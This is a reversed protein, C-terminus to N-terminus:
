LCKKTLELDLKIKHKPLWRTKSETFNIKNPNDGYVKNTSTFIFAAKPNYKKTLELM